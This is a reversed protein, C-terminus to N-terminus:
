NAPDLNRLLLVPAGVKLVTKHLPFGPFVIANLYEMLLNNVGQGNDGSIRDASLFVREEGHLRGLIKENLEDVSANRPSLIAREKFYECRIDQAPNLANISPYIADILQDICNESDPPICYEEPLCLREAENGDTLGEGVRLLWNAFQEAK